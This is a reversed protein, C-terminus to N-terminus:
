YYVSCRYCLYMIMGANLQNLYLKFAIGDTDIQVVKQQPMEEECHVDHVVWSYNGKCHWYWTSSASIKFDIVTLILDVLM